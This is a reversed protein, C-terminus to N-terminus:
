LNSTIKRVYRYVEICSNFTQNDIILQKNSYTIEIDIPDHCFMQNDIIIIQKFIGFIKHKALHYFPDNPFKSRPLKM